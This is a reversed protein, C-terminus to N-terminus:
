QAQLPPSAKPTATEGLTGTIGMAAVIDLLVAADTAAYQIQSDSLPRVDWDSCQEKKNLTRGLWVEAVSKLGPLLHQKQRSSPTTCGSMYAKAVTQVDLHEFNIDQVPVSPPGGIDSRLLQILKEIDHHFAFGLVLVRECSFIWVILSKLAQSPNKCDLVWAHDGAKLQIIAPLGHHQGACGRWETDMGVLLRQHPGLDSLSQELIKSVKEINGPDFEDSVWEPAVSLEYELLPEDLDSTKKPKVPKVDLGDQQSRSTVEFLAASRLRRVVEFPLVDLRSRSAELLKASCGLDHVHALLQDVMELWSPVATRIECAWRLQRAWEAVKMGGQKAKIQGQVLVTLEPTFGGKKDKEHYNQWLERIASCDDSTFSRKFLLMEMALAGDAASIIESAPTEDLVSSSESLEGLLASLIARIPKRDKHSRNSLARGLSEERCAALLKQLMVTGGPIVSKFSGVLVNVAPRHGKTSSSDVIVGVLAASAVEPGENIAAVLHTLQDPHLEERNNSKYKLYKRTNDAADGQSAVRGSKAYNPTDVMFVSVKKAAMETVVLCARFLSTPVQVKARLSLPLTVTGVASPTRLEFGSLGPFSQIDRGYLTCRRMQQSISPGAHLPLAWGFM